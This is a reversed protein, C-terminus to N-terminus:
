GQGEGVELERLTPRIVEGHGAWVQRQARCLRGLQIQSQVDHWRPPADDLPAGGPGSGDRDWPTQAIDDRARRNVAMVQRELTVSCGGAPASIGEPLQSDSGAFGIDHSNRC